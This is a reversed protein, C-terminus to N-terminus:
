RGKPLRRPVPWRETEDIRTRTEYSMVCTLEGRRMKPSPRREFRQLCRNADPPMDPNHDLDQRAPWGTALYMGYVHAAATMGTRSTQGIPFESFEVRLESSPNGVRPHIVWGSYGGELIVRRVGDFRENLVYAKSERLALMEFGAKLVARSVRSWLKESWRIEMRLRMSGEGEEVVDSGVDLVVNAQEDGFDVATLWANRFEARPMRGKKSPIAQITRMFAIPPCNLLAKDCTSLAGGNCRDCVVGAPLVASENGLSEPLVHERGRWGGDSRLCFICVDQGRAM